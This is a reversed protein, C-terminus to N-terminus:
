RKEMLYSVVSEWNPFEESGFHIWKGKFKSAGNWRSDDILFNGKILDKRHTLIIRKYFIGGFHKEVWIRKDTWASPNRWPATSLIFVEYHRSLEKVADIAGPMPDMLAFFGPIDEYHGEYEKKTAEDVYKLASNFEALVGDMDFFLTKM